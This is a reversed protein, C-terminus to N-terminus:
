TSTCVDQGYLFQFKLLNYIKYPQASSHFELGEIKVQVYDKFEEGGGGGFRTPCFYKIKDNNIM